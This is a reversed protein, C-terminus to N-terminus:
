MLVLLLPLLTRLSRPLLNGVMMSINGLMMIKEFSAWCWPNTAWWWSRATDRRRLPQGDDDDVEKVEEWWGSAILFLFEVEFLPFGWLQNRQRVFVVNTAEATKVCFLLNKTDPPLCTAVVTAKLPNMIGSPLIRPTSYPDSLPNVMWSHTLWGTPWGDLLPDVMRLHPTLWPNCQKLNASTRICVKHVLQWQWPTGAGQRGGGLSGLIPKRWDLDDGGSLLQDVM